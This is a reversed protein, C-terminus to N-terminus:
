LNMFSIFTSLRSRVRCTYPSSGPFSALFVIGRRCGWVQLEEIKKTVREVEV